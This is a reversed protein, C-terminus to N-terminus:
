QTSLILFFTFKENKKLKEFYMGILKNVSFCKDKDTFFVSLSGASMCLKVSIIWMHRVLLMEM